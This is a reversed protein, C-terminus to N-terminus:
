RYGGNRAYTRQMFVVGDIYGLGRCAGHERFSAQLLGAIWRNDRIGAQATPQRIIRLGRGNKSPALIGWSEPVPDEPRLLDRDGLVLWWRDVSDIAAQSKEPNRLECLLDPRSVKLEFGHVLHDTSGWLGIAVADIRRRVKREYVDGRPLPIREFGDIPVEFAIAHEPMPVAATTKTFKRRLLHRIEATKM